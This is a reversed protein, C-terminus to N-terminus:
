YVLLVVIGFITFFKKKNLKKKPQEQENMKEETITQIEKEENEM